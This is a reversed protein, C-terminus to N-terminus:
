NLKVKEPSKKDQTTQQLILYEASLDNVRADIETKEDDAFGDWLTQMNKSFM